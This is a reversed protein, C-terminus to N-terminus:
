TDAEHQECAALLALTESGAYVPAWTLVDGEPWCPKWCRDLPSWEAGLRPRGTIERALAYICGRTAPDTADPVFDRCAAPFSEGYCWVAGGVVYLVRHSRGIRPGADEPDYYRDRVRVALMGPMWRWGRLAVWRRAEALQAPTM